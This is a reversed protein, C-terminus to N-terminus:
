DSFFSHIIEYLAQVDSRADHFSMLPDSDVTLQYLTKLKTYSTMKCSCATRNLLADPISYGLRYLENCLINVDFGTNHSIVLDSSNIEDLIGSDIITKFEVGNQKLFKPTLGHIAISSSSIEFEEPKRFYNVITPRTDEGIYYICYAFQLIRASDYHENMTYPYYEGFGQTNPLGSTELDFMFVRKGKNSKCFEELHHTIMRSQELKERITKIPVKYRKSLNYLDSSQKYAAIIDEM